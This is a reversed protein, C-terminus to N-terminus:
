KGLGGLEEHLRSFVENSDESASVFTIYGPMAQELGIFFDRFGQNFEESLLFSPIPIGNREARERSVAVPVDLYFVHYPVILNNENSLREVAWDSIDIGTIKAAGVEFALLTFISRDIAITDQALGAMDQSRRRELNLFFEFSKKAAEEDTPPFKPFDQNAHAVYESYELVTGLGERNLKEVLTSKGACVPGEIAVIIPSKPESEIIKGKEIVGRVLETRM